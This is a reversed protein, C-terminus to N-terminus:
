ASRTSCRTPRSWISSGGLHRPVGAQVAPEQAAGHQRRGHRARLVHDPQDRRPRRRAVARAPLARGPVARALGRRQRQSQSLHRSARGAGDGLPLDGSPQAGREGQPLHLAQLVPRTVASRDRRRRDQGPDAQRRGRRVGGSRHLAAAPRQSRGPPLVRQARVRVPDGAAAHDPALAAADAPGPQRLQVHRGQPRAAAGLRAGACGAVMTALKDPDAYKEHFQKLYHAPMYIFTPTAGALAPLFFPNPKAWSYRVTLEDPFEVQPPEGDVYLEAPPGTPSLQENNAVDEWWYRFDESTFPQRRVLSPGPRLHLTFVRGDEVEVDKLIDPVLELAEDYAVLRAYGYVVM